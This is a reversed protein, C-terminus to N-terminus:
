LRDTHLRRYYVFGKSLTIHQHSLFLFSFFFPNGFYHYYCLIYVHTRVGFHYKIKDDDDHSTTPALHLAIPHFHLRGYLLGYACACGVSSTFISFLFRALFIYINYSSIPVPDFLSKAWMICIYLGMVKPHMSVGTRCVRIIIIYATCASSFFFFYFLYIYIKIDIIGGARNKCMKYIATHHIRESRINM